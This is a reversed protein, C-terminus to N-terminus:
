KKRRWKRKRLRKIERVQVKQRKKIATVIKKKKLKFSELKVEKVRKNKLSNLKSEYKKLIQLNQKLERSQQGKLKLMFEDRTKIFYIFFGTLGLIFILIAVFFWITTNDKPSNDNKGNVDFVDVYINSNGNDRLIAVFVYSGLDFDEPIDIVKSYDVSEKLNVNEEEKILVNGDFDEVLYEMKVIRQEPNRLSILSLDVGLKGGPYVNSYQSILKGTIVISNAPNDVSLLIPIKKQTLMGNIVLYGVYTAVEGRTDKFKVNVEKTEKSDLSLNQVVEKDINNLSEFGLYIDQPNLLLNTIKVSMQVENNIPFNMRIIFTNVSFDKGKDLSNKYFFLAASILLILIGLSIFLVKKKM